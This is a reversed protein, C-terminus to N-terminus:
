RIVKCRTLVTQQVGDYEKHEKVTGTLSIESNVDLNKAATTWVYTNGDADEFIHMHSEGYYGNLKINRVVKVQVSLKEGVAGQYTSTSEKRFMEAVLAKLELITKIQGDTSVAEWTLEKAECDSPVEVSVGAPAYWGLGDNYRCGAERLEERHNYTNGTLVLITGNEDGFGNAEPGNRYAIRAARAAQATARRTEASKDMRAREADTYWRVEMIKVGSGMCGYCITGDMQNYSFHGSGGCRPCAGKVRVYPKGDREFPEKIIEFKEYSKAVAM